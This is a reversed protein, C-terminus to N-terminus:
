SALRRDDRSLWFHRTTLADLGVDHDDVDFPERRMVVPRLLGLFSFLGIADLFTLFSRVPSYTGARTRTARVGGSQLADIWWAELSLVGARISEDASRLPVCM